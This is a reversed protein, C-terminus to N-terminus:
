VEGKCPRTLPDQHRHDWRAMMQAYPRDTVSKPYPKMMACSWGKLHECDASMDAHAIYHFVGQRRNVRTRVAGLRVPKGCDCDIM